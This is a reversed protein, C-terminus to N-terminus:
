RGRAEGPPTAVDAARARAVADLVMRRLPEEPELRVRMPVWAIDFPLPRWRLLRVADKETTLVLSAGVRAAEERVRSLDEASYDHHDGLAIMGQVHWGEATLDAAFREPRAIGALAVCRAGVPPPTSRGPVQELWVPAGLHRRGTTIPVDPRVLPGVTSRAEEPSADMVVVAGAHILASVPERLRGAPLVADATVDERTVSVLDLDRALLFHQFGDDLVHVTAGFQEEAVVGAAHRDPSVIVIAEPLRRALMFPEDGARVVDARMSAGDSVIVLDGPQRRGYGRSLIAPREGAQRLWEVLHAVLPTKGSGGVRLNGVSLVPRGLRRVRGSDRSFRARRARAGAAYLAGVWEAGPFSRAATM